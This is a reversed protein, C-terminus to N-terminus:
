DFGVAYDGFDSHGIKDHEHSDHSPAFHSRKETNIRIIALATAISCADCSMEDATKPLDGLRMASTLPAPVFHVKLAANKLSDYGLSLVHKSVVQRPVACGDPLFPCPFGIGSFEHGNAFFM